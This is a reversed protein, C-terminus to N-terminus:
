TARSKDGDDAGSDLGLRRSAEEACRGYDAYDTVTTGFPEEASELERVRAEAKRVRELLALATGPNFTEIFIKNATSGQIDVVGDKHAVGHLVDGDKGTAESSLRRYSCSTWWAWPGPTAERAVKELEEDTM